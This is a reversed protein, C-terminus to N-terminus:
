GRLKQIFSPKAKPKAIAIRQTRQKMQYYFSSNTNWNSGLMTRKQLVTRIYYTNYYLNKREKFKTHSAICVILNNTHHPPARCIQHKYYLVYSTHLTSCTHHYPACHLNNKYSLVDPSNLTTFTRKNKLKKHLFNHM